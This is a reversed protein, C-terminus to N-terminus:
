KQHNKEHSLILFALIFLSAGFNAMAPSIVGLFFPGISLCNTGMTSCTSLPKLSPFYTLLLQYGSLGIGIAPFPVAYPMIGLFGRYLALGLLITLPFLFIRQCWCLTCPEYHLIQSVYLSGLTMFCSLLWAGYLFIIKKTM